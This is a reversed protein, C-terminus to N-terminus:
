IYSLTYMCQFFGGTVNAKAHMKKKNLRKSWECFLSVCFVLYGFALICASILCYRTVLVHVPLFFIQNKVLLIVLCVSTKISMLVLVYPTEFICYLLYVYQFM